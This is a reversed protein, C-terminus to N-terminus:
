LIAAGALHVPGARAALGCDQGEQRQVARKLLFVDIDRVIGFHQANTALCIGLGNRCGDVAIEVGLNERPLMGLDPSTLIALYPDAIDFRRVSCEDVRISQRRITPFRIGVLEVLVVDELQPNINDAFVLLGNHMLFNRGFNLM